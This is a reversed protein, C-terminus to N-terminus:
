KNRPNQLQIAKRLNPYTNLVGDASYEYEMHFTGVGGKRYQTGNFTPNWLAYAILSRAVWSQQDDPLTYTEGNSREGTTRFKLMNEPALGVYDDKHQAGEALIFKYATINIGDEFNETIITKQSFAEPTLYNKFHDYQKDFRDQLDNPRFMRSTYVQLIFYDFHNALSDALSKPDGDVVLMKGTGSKPGLETSLVEIFRTMAGPERWLEEKPQFGIQPIFPEADLDFGDYNYTRITDLIAKAYKEVATMKSEQTDGWGWYEHRFNKGPNKEAWGAPEDPTLQDGIDHVQWCILVKTGKVEQVYRLDEKQSQSINSWNGWLSVFDVSDPLGSLSQELSANRGAWGGFWGFAVPHESKKYNRLQAYYAVSRNNATLDAPNHIETETWDSCSTLSCVTALALLISKYIKKM